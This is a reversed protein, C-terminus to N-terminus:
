VEYIEEKLIEYLFNASIYAAYEKYDDSKNNALDMVSKVIITKVDLFKHLRLIAYSEMDIACLKRQAVTESIKDLENKKDLVNEGCAIPDFYINPLDERKGTYKQYIDNIIKTCDGDFIGKVAVNTQAHGVDLNLGNDTIKGRQYAVSDTPIIIDGIKVKGERGGCVGIMFLHKINFDKVLITGIAAADVTGMEQQVASVFKITKKNKTEIVGKRYFLNGLSIRELREKFIALFPHSEEQLACVIGIDAEKEKKHILLEKSSLLGFKIAEQVTRNIIGKKSYGYEREFDNWAFFSKVSLDKKIITNITETLKNNELLVNYNRSVLMIPVNKGKLLELIPILEQPEGKDTTWNSLVIDVLYGDVINKNISKKLDAPKSIAFIEFDTSLVTEYVDKRSEWEDDIISLKLKSM